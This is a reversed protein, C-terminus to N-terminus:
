EQPAEYVVRGTLLIEGLFSHHGPNRYESTPYGIPALNPNRDLTARTIMRQREWLPVGEFDPSIVAVDIDSWEDPSGNVYSGYLVAAEIRLGGAKLLAILHPIVKDLDAAATVM